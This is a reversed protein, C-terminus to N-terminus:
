RWCRREPQALQAGVAGPVAFGLDGGAGLFFSGSRRFKMRDWMAAAGNMSETVVIGNHGILPGVINYVQSATLTDVAPPIEQPARPAPAPWPWPRTRM